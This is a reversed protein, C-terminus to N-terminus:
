RKRERIHRPRDPGKAKPQSPTRVTVQDLRVRVEIVDPHAAFIRQSVWTVFRGYIKGPKPRDGADDWVGRVRRHQVTRALVSGDDVPARYLPFWANGGRTAEIVLRGPYPDAFTFLGWAQGAGFPRELSRYPRIIQRRVSVAQQSLSVTHEVLQKASIQIGLGDLIEVWRGVEEKAMDRRMHRKSLMPLPLAEVSAFFLVLTLLAARIAPWRPSM